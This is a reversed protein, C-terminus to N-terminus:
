GARPARCPEEGCRSRRARRSDLHAAAAGRLRGARRADGSRRLRRGRRGGRVRFVCADSPLLGRPLGRAAGAARLDRDPRQDPACGRRQQAAVGRRPGDGEVSFVDQVNSYGLPDADSRIPAALAIPVADVLATPGHRDAGPRMAAVPLPTMDEAERGLVGRLRATVPPGAAPGCIHAPQAREIGLASLTSVIGLFDDVFRTPLVADADVHLIWDADRDDGAAPGAAGRPQWHQRVEFREARDLEELLRAPPASRAPDYSGRVLVRERRDAPPRYAIAPRPEPALDFMVLYDDSYIRRYVANLHATLEGYHHLWWFQSSPLVFYRAGSERMVEVQEIAAASDAPHFGGWRGDPAEPFHRMCRGTCALLSDDGHSVVLVTSGPATISHLTAAIAESMEEYAAVRGSSGDRTDDAKLWRPPAAFVSELVEDFREAVREPTHAAAMEAYGRDAVRQWCAHDTLLQTIADALEQPTDAILLHDGHRLQTGEVGLSTTVVPTGAMLSELIKGKVGAGHLIPAVCIRARELYPEVSPVWGVMKVNPLGAGHAAVGMDELRSGVVYVPHDALLDPDLRPLIDRCFYEVAESNPLHRFNGVFLIGQREDFPVASRPGPMALPIEHIRGHGILDGLLRAEHGSVTLVADAWRYTDLEAALGAGFGADLQEEGGILRRAVRLFHVDISDIVVRAEPSVSRLMPLLRSAPEWFALLALDFKGDAIVGEAERWGSYTPVGLQQLRRGHRPEGDTETGLFTVSWDRELLWRIFMDVRRSGSDRDIEPFRTQSVLARRRSM